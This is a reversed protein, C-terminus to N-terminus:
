QEIVLHVYKSICGSFSSDCCVDIRPRQLVEIPILEFRERGSREEWVASRGHPLPGRFTTDKDCTVAWIVM